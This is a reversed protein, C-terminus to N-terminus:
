IGGGRGTGGALIPAHVRVGAGVEVQGEGRQLRGVELLQAVPEVRGVHVLPPADVRRRVADAPRGPAFRGDIGDGGVVQGLDLLAARRM